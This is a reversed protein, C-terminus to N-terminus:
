FLKLQDSDEKKEKKEEEKVEEFKFLVGQVYCGPLIGQEFVEEEM